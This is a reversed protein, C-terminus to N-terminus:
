NLWVAMTTTNCQWREPCSKTCIYSTDIFLSLREVREPGIGGGGGLAHPTSRHPALHCHGSVMTTPSGQRGTARPRRDVMPISLPPLSPTTSPGGTPRLVTSPRRLPFLLFLYPLITSPYALTILSNRLFHLRLEGNFPNALLLLQGFHDLFSSLM